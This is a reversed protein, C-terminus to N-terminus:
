KKFNGEELLLVLKKAVGNMKETSLSSYLSGFTCTKPKKEKWELMMQYACERVGQRSGKVWAEATRRSAHHADDPDAKQWESMGQALEEKM